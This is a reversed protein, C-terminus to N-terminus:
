NMYSSLCTPTTKTEAEEITLAESTKTANTNEYTDRKRYVTTSKQSVSGLGRMDINKRHIGSLNTTVQLLGKHILDLLLAQNNEGLVSDLNPTYKAIDVIESFLTDPITYTTFFPNKDTYLEIDRKGETPSVGIRFNINETLTVFLTNFNNQVLLMRQHFYNKVQKHIAQMPNHITKCYYTDALSNNTKHILIYGFNVNSIDAKHFNSLWKDLELNYADFSQGFPAHSHPVSFLIDDRDATRLVLQHSPGGHWWQALKEQYKNVDVLDTVIHLKGNATLYEASHKIIHSLIDEGQSGGDRFRLTKDPSPVFPPNALIIDFKRDQVVEYLNGLKCQVNNIDNLQANFRAFRIARPNLDIATVKRAYRSAQLAQVGSGTCLDLAEDISYHPATHVLGISDLGIYMVPDEGIKDEELIMYRHDTAVLLDNVPYIDVRSAIENDRMLLIGLRILLDFNDNGLVNYAREPPLSARLMFLRLLDHLPEEKLLFRNYYHLHTPEITQTSGIKLLSCINKENYGCDFFLKRISSLSLRLSFSEDSFPCLINSSPNLLHSDEAIIETKQSRPKLRFSKLESVAWTLHSKWDATTCSLETRLIEQQESSSNLVAMLIRIKDWTYSKPATKKTYDIIHSIGRPNLLLVADNSLRTKLSQRFPNEPFLLSTEKLKGGFESLLELEEPNWPCQDTEGFFLARDLKYMLDTVDSQDTDLGHPLVSEGVSQLHEEYDLVAVHKKSIWFNEMCLFDIDTSLFTAIAEEPTEIIPQGAVNFSTNLLVPPGNRTEALKHCLQHMYPNDEATVTQVRGTGDHHTVAPIIKQYREKIKSILLMFPASVKQEFVKSIESEPIVPAFPRFAERFKVRANVIDKMRSFVPDALISRYGLARPGFESGGEFRALIHGKALTEACKNVVDTDPLEAVNIQGEYKKIADQIDQVPYQKGLNARRLKNRQTGLEHEAYAWLGCGAAIGADGASPFIFIDELELEKLMRYNAVSNLAVGGALCVHKIGTAQVAQAVIHLLAEELEQQVKYALDVLYPRLYAKGQQDDYKKELAAIELFIDYAAINLSYNEQKTRIWQQWHHQKKGYPALGMLKGAEPIEIADGVRTTFGAKRSVYEYVFGLTSLTALHSEVTESHILQIDPGEARYLSYSETRHNSDTTGTADAVLVVAKEFGSPWYATYAHALHHSPIKRIKNVTETPLKRRLIEDSYDIGPMNATITSVNAYSINQSDLCYRIAEDPLQIQSADGVSQHMFGISHKRRDLREQHIAVIVEGDRVLAASRDHGLNIGLHYQSM